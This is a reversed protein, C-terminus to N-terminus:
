GRRRMTQRQAQVALLGLGAFAFCILLPLIPTSSNSPSDGATSTPPATVARSPVSTAALVTQTEAKPITVVAAATAVPTEGSFGHGIATVVVSGADVDAQTIAYTGTCVISAGSALGSPTAPCAANAIKDSTVTFLGDLTVNGTNTLTFTYDIIDGAKAFNPQAAAAVMTLQPVPAVGVAVNQSVQSAAAYTGNGAQNAAITCTGVALLTLAGTGSDVTCISTTTSTYSVALGSTATAHVSAGSMGVTAGTPAPDFAITQSNLGVAVNQTVQSAAAYTGNGAQNAAITCTGAAAFSVLGSGNISCIGSSVADITLAVPLGSTASATPTYTGGITAGVPASSTFAITQSNKVIGFSQQVQSAAAYTGNGAQNAAITCTGAAAFSVLGSGNISCIGSSVADITLAVPLGSTASATPTYTGGITAGVPASSTFAITQSSMVVITAKNISTASNTTLNANTCASNAYDQVTVDFEHSGPTTTTVRVSLAKDSLAAIQVCASPTFAASLTADSTATVKFWHSSLPWANFVHISYDAYGPAVVTHTQNGPDFYVLGVWASATGAMSSTALLLGALIAGARRLGGRRGLDLLM